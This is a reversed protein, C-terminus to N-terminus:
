ESRHDGGSSEGRGSEVSAIGGAARASALGPGYPVTDEAVTEDGATGTAESLLEPLRTSAPSSPTPPMSPGAGVRAPAEASERRPRLSPAGRRPCPRSQPGVLSLCDQLPGAPREIGTATAMSDLALESATAIRSLTRSVLPSAVAHHLLQATSASPPDEPLSISLPALAGLAPGTVTSEAPPPAQSQLHLAPRGSAGPSPTKDKVASRGLLSRQRAVRLAVGDNGYRSAVGPSALAPLAIVSGGEQALAATRAPAAAAAAGDLAGSDGPAEDSGSRRPHPLESRVSDDGEAPSTAGGADPPKGGKCVVAVAVAAFVLAMGGIQLWSTPKPFLLMSLAVAVAKCVALLFGTRAAGLARVSNLAALSALYNGVTFAALAALTRPEAFAATIGHAIAPSFFSSAVFLVSAIGMGYSAVEHATSGYQIMQQEQTNAYLGDCLLATSICAIGTIWNGDQLRSVPCQPALVQESTEDEDEPLPGDPAPSCQLALTLGILALAAALVDARSYRKKLWLFGIAMTPALKSAKAVLFESYALHLQAKSGLFFALYLAVGTVIHSRLPARRTALGGTLLGSVAVGVPSLLGLLSAHRFHLTHVIFENIFSTGLLSVLLAALHAFLRPPPDM